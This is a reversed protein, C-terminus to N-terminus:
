KMVKVSEIVVPSQPVDRYGGKVTTKVMKIKDVIEIGKVVKGFVCYGFGRPDTSRHNLHPNDQVNIFFQATASDVVGTRAMALTGKHNLLGNTAENKIPADTPKKNMDVTFGGGQIMFNNIVRHFITGNYFGKNVYSLFNKVTIPAKDPYLEIELEGMSTKMIVKSGSAGDSSSSKGKQHNCSFLLVMSLVLSLVKM